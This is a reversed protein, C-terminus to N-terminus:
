KKKKDSERERERIQREMEQEIDQLTANPNDQWWEKTAEISADEETKNLNLIFNTLMVVERVQAQKQGRGRWHSLDLSLTAM